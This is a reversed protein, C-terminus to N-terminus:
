RGRREIDARMKSAMVCLLAREGEKTRRYFDVVDRGQDFRAKYGPLQDRECLKRINIRFNKLQDLSGSKRHLTIMGIRWLPQHGCHKRALEYVRRELPRTLGLYEDDLKLVRSSQVSRYLWEPLTAEVAAMRNSDDWTLIRWDDILGFGAREIKGGTQLSTEIVTGKLRRLAQHLGRYGEGSVERRMCRLLDYAVFRVTPAVDLRGRNMAERLQSLCYIWVDKDTMLAVGDPGPKVMVSVDNHQYSRIKHSPSLGFLPHEMSPLDAKLPVDVLDAVFYARTGSPGIDTRWDKFQSM